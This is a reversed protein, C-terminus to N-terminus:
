KYQYVLVGSTVWGAVKNETMVLSFGNQRALVTVKDKELVDGFTDSDDKPEYRLYALNGYKTKVYQTEYDDLWNGDDPHVLRSSSGLLDDQNPGSDPALSAYLTPSPVTSEATSSPESTAADTDDADPIDEPSMADGPSPTLPSEFSPSPSYRLSDCLSMDRSMWAVVVIVAVLLVAMWKVQRKQMHFAAGSGVTELAKRFEEPTRYRNKPNPACAKRIVATMRASADRPQPLNEGRIRKRFAEERDAPSLIQKEPLFPMRKGNLMWFLVLGLSYQDAASGYPDGRYVEPAMYNETGIRTTGSAMSELKKGIGFDGLKFTGLSDVFINEPKIDRHLIQQGSCVELARCIDTGLRVVDSETAECDCLWETLPTLLEMRIFIDWGPSDTRELVKYDEIGVVNQSVKVSQMLKIERIVDEVMRRYSARIGADNLGEIRYKETEDNESPIPIHKIASRSEIGYERRVAQYVTGFSGRGLEKEIEWEPWAAKTQDM